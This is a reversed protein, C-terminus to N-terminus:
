DSLLGGMTQDKQVWLQDLWQYFRDRGQQDAFYRGDKLDEPISRLRVDVRVRRTQGCFFKWLGPVGDPYAITIDVLDQLQDGMAYLIMAMGGARPKLLHRYPSNQKKHKHRTFRTGEMFNMVAVPTHRFKECSKRTTELDQGKLHPHKEVVHKPYRKMVPFDLGWFCQGMLPLWLLEKKIFFKYPPVRGALVRILVLIDVWSQHNSVILCWRGMHLDAQGRIDYAVRGLIRHTWVSCAVWMGSAIRDLVRGARKQVAKVPVLFKVAAVLFFFVCLVGTFGVYVAFTFVGRLVSLFDLGM